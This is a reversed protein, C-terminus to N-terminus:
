PSGPRSARMGSFISRFDPSITLTPSSRSWAGREGARVAFAFSHYGFHSGIDWFTAGSLDGADTLADYLFSDFTGDIMEQWGAYSGPDLYLDVGQLSGSRVTHWDPKRQRPAMVKRAVASALMRPSMNWVTTMLKKM